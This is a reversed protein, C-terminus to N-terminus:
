KLVQKLEPLIRDVISAYGLDNPHIADSMYKMNGVLGSLVNPVYVAGRKEALLEFREEFPDGIIPIVSGQVGLLVVVAGMAQIRAIIEDLNKFTDALPVKRLYDNGGLLVLVVKPNHKKIEDVRALGQATTNGSVGLNIVPEGIRASILSSIDNGKTAGVGEILSDGFAVITTGKSPYNTIKTDRSFTFFLVVAVIIGLGVFAFINKRITFMM